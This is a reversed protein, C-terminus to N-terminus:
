DVKLHEDIKRCLFQGNRETNDKHTELTVTLMPKKFM